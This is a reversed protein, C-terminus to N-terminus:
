PEAEVLSKLQRIQNQDTIPALQQPDKALLWNCESLSESRRGTEFCLVARRWHELVSSTDLALMVEIYRLMAEADRAEEASAALNRVLRYVIERKSQPKWSDATIPVDSLAKAQTEAEAHTLRRAGEYVDIL